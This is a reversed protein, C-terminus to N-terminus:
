FLWPYRSNSTQIHLLSSPQSSAHTIAFTARLKAISWFM